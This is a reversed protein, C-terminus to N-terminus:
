SGLPRTVFLPCSFCHHQRSSLSLSDVRALSCTSWVSFRATPFLRSITQLFLSIPASPSCRSSNGHFCSCRSPNGLFNCCSCRSPNGLFNCLFITISPRSFQCLFTTISPRPFQCLFVTISQRSCNLGLVPCVFMNISQERASSRSPNAQLFHRMFLFLNLPRSADPQSSRLTRASHITNQPPM